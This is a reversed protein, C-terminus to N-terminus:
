GESPQEGVTVWRRAVTVAAEWAGARLLARRAAAREDWTAGARRLAALVRGLLMGRDPTIGALSVVALPYRPGPTTV